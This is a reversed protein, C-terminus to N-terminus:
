SPLSRYGPATHAVSERFARPSLGAHRKFAKAFSAGDAFGVTLAVAEIKIQLNALLMRAVTWVEADRVAKFTTGEDRLARHLSPESTHLQRAVAARDAREGTILLARTVDTVRERWTAHVTAQRAASAAEAALQAAIAPNALRSPVDLDHRHFVIAHRPRAFLVPCRLVREVEGADGHPPHRLEVRAPRLDGTPVIALVRLVALLLYEVVHPGDELASEGLDFTMVAETPGVELHVLLSSISIPAYRERARLAAEVNAEALMLFALPGRPTAHEAAHEAAHLGILEDGSVQEAATFLDVVARPAVRMGPNRELRRADIGAAACLAEVDLGCVGLSRLVDLLPAAGVTGAPRPSKLRKSLPILRESM